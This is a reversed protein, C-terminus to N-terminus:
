SFFYEKVAALSVGERKTLYRAKAREVRELSLIMRDESIRGERIREALLHFSALVQQQDKCILLIDAGADFALFAAEALPKQGAIAGMELDDTITLGQFGMTNRLLDTLIPRSLTAPHEPDLMSYVAHSTMIATVGEEVAAKFPVLNVSEMEEPDTDIIPLHLHPDVRAPGLGPFHKAVAMIGGEQLSKIVAKGLLAVQHPDVGFSRGQLHKELEGQQVDVVPALDMNLGVLNMERATVRGFAEAMSSPEAGAGIAANGPFVTFPERLRSVRGGEQDVALFLPVGQADLAERQLDRCLKALQMPDQINRSFLIIGGLNCNRILSATDEDLVPGPMGAMFLQGLRSYLSDMM